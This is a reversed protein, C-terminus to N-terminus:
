GDHRGGTSFSPSVSRTGIELAFVHGRRLCLQAPSLEEPIRFRAVEEALTHAQEKMASAAAATQEVMAANQQTMRDLEQVAQGIQGVGQSQERAGIAVEDLLRDVRQSSAVIEEITRGAGQV